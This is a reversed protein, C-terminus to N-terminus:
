HLKRQYFQEMTLKTFATFFFLCALEYKLAVLYSM